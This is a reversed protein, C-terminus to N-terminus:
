KRNEQVGFNVALYETLTREQEANLLKAGLGSMRDITKAWENKSKHGGVAIGLTHCTGCSQVLIARGEGAPLDGAPSTKHSAESSGGPSANSDPGYNAALYSILSDIESPLIQAGRSIMSYVSKRWLAANKNQISVEKMGHCSLCGKGFAERGKDRDEASDRKAQPTGEQPPPPFAELSLTAIGALCLTLLCLSIARSGVHRQVTFYLSLKV